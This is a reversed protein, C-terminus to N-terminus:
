IKKYAQANQRAESAKKQHAYPRSLFLTEFRNWLRSPEIERAFLLADRNGKEEIMKEAFWGPFITGDQTLQEATRPFNKRTIQNYRDINGPYAERLKIRFEESITSFYDSIGEDEIAQRLEAQRDRLQAVRVREAERREQEDAKKKAQPSNAKARRKAEEIKARAFGERENKSKRGEHTFGREFNDGGSLAPNKEERSEEKKNEEKKERSPPDIQYGAQENKIRPDLDVQYGPKQVGTDIQYGTELQSFEVERRQIIGGEAELKKDIQDKDVIWKDYLNWIFDHGVIMSRNTGYKNPRLEKHIIGRKILKRIQRVITQESQRTHIALAKNTEYCIRGSMTWYAIRDILLCEGPSLDDPLMFFLHSLFGRPRTFQNISASNDFKKIKTM